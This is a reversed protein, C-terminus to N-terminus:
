DYDETGALIITQAENLREILKILGEEDYIDSIGLVYSDGYLISEFIRKLQEFNKSNRSISFSHTSSSNTEFTDKRVTIM